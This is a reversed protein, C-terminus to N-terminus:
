GAPLVVVVRTGSPVGGPQADEIRVQGRHGVAISRVIALGLGTGGRRRDEPGGRSRDPDLRTFRAFVEDRREAPIGPGDDTVTLRVQAGDSVLTVAVTSAAHGEANDLLNRVLRALEAPDGRVPAASVGSLDLAVGPPSPARAEELVVTDLDVLVDHRHRGADAGSEDERALLLLDRVLGEMRDTDRSVGDAVESWDTSGPHALAVELRARLSALPSQLEHSADAVFERQRTAADDLRGLMQNLTSALRAVEDGTGPEALRRTGASPTLASAERRLDEVPGLARGVVLRTGAALLLLLVPISVILGRRLSAVAEEVSELSDGVFVSVPGSPGPASLAWVRYDETETDDQVGTLVLLDAGGTRVPVEAIPGSGTLGSSWGLVAGDPGVVQAIGDEGLDTLHTPLTGQAVQRALEAARSRALDDRHETLDHRLVGLLVWAAAVLVVGALLTTALTTRARVSRPLWAAVM